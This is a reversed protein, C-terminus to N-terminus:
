HLQLHPSLSHPPVPFFVPSHFLLLCGVKINTSSRVLAASRCCRRECQDDWGSDGDTNIVARDEIPWLDNM